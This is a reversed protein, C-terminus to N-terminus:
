PTVGSPSTPGRWAASRIGTSCPRRSNQLMVTRATQRPSGGLSRRVMITTWSPRWLKITRYTANRTEPTRLDFRGDLRRGSRAGEWAVRLEPVSASRLSEWYRSPGPPEGTRAAVGVVVFVTAPCRYHRLIPLAIDHNDRYGDDYTPTMSGRPLPQGVEIFAIVDKMSVIAHTRHLYRVHGAFHRPSVVLPDRLCPAGGISHYRLILLGPPRVGLSRFLAVVGSFYLAAALLQQVLRSVRPPRTMPWAHARRRRRDPSARPGTRGPARRVPGRRRPLRHQDEIHQRAQRGIAARLPADAAARLTTATLDALDGARFLLGTQGDVVVERAAPIDSALLVRGCAQTELYVRALGEDASPMVVLDALNIYDPVRPYDVWGTFRVRDQIGAQQCADEMPRRAPGDGVILYVLRPDQPLVARASAVVDLPQKIPKLNSLHAVVLATDPIGHQRLLAPDKPRPAFRETDVANPILRRRGDWRAPGSPSIAPPPSSGNRTRGAALLERALGTSYTGRLLGCIVSGPLRLLCPIAHARAIDAVDVVFARAASSCSTRPSAAIMAPLLTRIADRQGRRYASTAPIDATIDYHSVAFRSVRM